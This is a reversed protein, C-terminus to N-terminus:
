KETRGGVTRMQISLVMREVEALRIGLASTPDAVGARVWAQGAVLPQPGSMAAQAEVMGTLDVRVFAVLRDNPRGIWAFAAPYFGTDQGATGVLFVGRLAGDGAEIYRVHHITTFYEVNDWFLGRANLEDFGDSGRKVLHAVDRSHWVKSFADIAAKKESASFGFPDDGSDDRFTADWTRFSVFAEGLRDDPGPATREFRVIERSGEYRSAWGPSWAGGDSGPPFTVAVEVGDAVSTYRHGDSSPEADVQAPGAGSAPVSGPAKVCAALFLPVVLRM